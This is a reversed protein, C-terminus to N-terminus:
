TGPAQEDPNGLMMELWPEREEQDRQLGVWGGTCKQLFRVESLHHFREPGRHVWGYFPMWCPVGLLAQLSDTM